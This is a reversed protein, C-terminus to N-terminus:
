AEFKKVVLVVNHGGFGLSSSMACRIDLDRAENPCYDLNCEPDPTEYNITPHVRGQRIMGVTFALEV